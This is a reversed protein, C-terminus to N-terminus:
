LGGQPVGCPNTQCVGPDNPGSLCGTALLLERVPDIYVRTIAPPMYARKAVVHVLRESMQHEQPSTIRRSSTDSARPPHGKM